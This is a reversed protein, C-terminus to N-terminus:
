RVFGTTPAYDSGIGSELLSQYFPSKEGDVLLSGLISLACSENVNAISDAVSVYYRNM